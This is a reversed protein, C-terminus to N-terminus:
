LPVAEELMKFELIHKNEPNLYNNIHNYIEKIITLEPNTLKTTTLLLHLKQMIEKYDNTDIKGAKLYDLIDQYRKNHFLLIIDSPELHSIIRKQSELLQTPSIDKINNLYTNLCEIVGLFGFTMTSISMLNDYKKNADNIQSPIFEAMPLLNQFKCYYKPNLSDDVLGLWVIDYSPNNLYRQEFIDTKNYNNQGDKLPQCEKTYFNYTGFLYTADDLIIHPILNHDLITMYKDLTKSPIDIHTSINILAKQAAFKTRLQNLQAIFIQTNEDTMEDLTGQLDLMIVIVKERRNNLKEITQRNMFKQRHYIHKSTEKKM